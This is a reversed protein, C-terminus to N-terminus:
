RVREEVLTRREGHLLGVLELRVIGTGVEIVVHLQKPGFIGTEGTPVKPAIADRWAEAAQYLNTNFSM